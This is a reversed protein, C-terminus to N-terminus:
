KDNKSLYIKKIISEVSEDDVNIDSIPYKEILKKLIDTTKAKTTDVRLKVKYGKNMIVECDKIKIEGVKREFEIILDKYSIFKKKLNEISGEYV